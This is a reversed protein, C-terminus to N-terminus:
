FLVQAWFKKQAKKKVGTFFFETERVCYYWFKFGWKIPKNEVYQKM